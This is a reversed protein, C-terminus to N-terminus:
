DRTELSGPGCVVTTVGLLANLPTRELRLARSQMRAAGAHGAAGPPAPRKPAPCGQQAGDLFESVWWFVDHAAVQQRLRPMAARREAAPLDVACQITEALGARDYPNCLLAGDGLQAAAGAFESLILVGDGANCTVYEKAVLNMGDKIPTVLAVDAVRYYALLEAFSLRRTLYHIPVWGPLTFEGNIAGVLRAIETRLARDHQIDVRSPVAIPHCAARTCGACDAPLASSQGTAIPASLLRRRDTVWVTAAAYDPLARGCSRASTGAVTEGSRMGDKTAPPQGGAIPGAGNPM